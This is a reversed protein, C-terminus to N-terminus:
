DGGEATCGIAWLVVTAAIPGMVFVLWVLDAATRATM